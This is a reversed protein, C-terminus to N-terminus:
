VELLEYVAFVENTPYFMFLCSVTKFQLDQKVFPPREYPESYSFACPDISLSLNGALSEFTVKSAAASGPCVSVHAITGRLSINWDVGGEHVSRLGPLFVNQGFVFVPARQDKWKNLMAVAEELSLKLAMNRGGM